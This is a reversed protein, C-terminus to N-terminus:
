RGGVRIIEKKPLFELVKELFQDLAHNTYCVMLMPSIEKPDWTERNDLLCRVIKAGVYTKGTGPPGQIVSFETTLATKLAELQSNNLPLIEVSPWAESQLIPVASANALEPVDLALRLDYCVPHQTDERRLYEPPNVEESCEVLYKKFPMTTEDLEKLGTLVHRYAEFYAPSEVMQYDCKLKEIGFVDQGEIFRIDIRGKVLEFPERDCVTAFLMTEFNDKSLCLFSGYILRKSHAWKRTDFKSTDFQVKYTIGSQTFTKAVIKAGPYNRM